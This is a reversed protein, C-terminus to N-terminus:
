AEKIKKLRCPDESVPPERGKRKRSRRTKTSVNTVARTSTIGSHISDPDKRRLNEQLTIQEQGSSLAGEVELIEDASLRCTKGKMWKLVRPLGPAYPDAGHALSLVVVRHVVQHQMRDTCEQQFGQYIAGLLWYWITISGRLVTNLDLGHELLIQFEVIRLSIITTKSNSILEQSFGNLWGAPSKDWYVQTIDAGRQLFELLIENQLKRAGSFLRSSNQTVTRLFIAFLTTGQTSLNPNVDHSFFQRLYLCTNSLGEETASEKRSLMGQWYFMESDLKIHGEHFAKLMKWHYEKHSADMHRAVDNLFATWSSVSDVLANPDAGFEISVKVMSPTLSRWPRQLISQTNDCKHAQRPGHSESMQPLCPEMSEGNVLRLEVAHKLINNLNLSAKNKLLRYRLYEAHGVSIAFRIIYCDFGCFEHLGHPRTRRNAEEALDVIKFSQLTDGTERAAHSALEIAVKVDILTPSPDVFKFTAAMARSIALLVNLESSAWSQLWQLMRKTMLFDRLTRHLFDVTTDYGISVVSTPELLGRFRGNLRRHTRLVIRHIKPGCWQECPSELGFTPDEQELFYYHIMKLPQHTRLAALFTTAMRTRYIDEVSGLIHEFFKELDTPIARLREHLISVPDDNTIGDRLSRVVLRVWLFVGQARAVIDSIMDDFLVQEFDAHATYSMLNERAFLEIDKRTWEHLRLIHPNSRGFADQFSNWPRSSLCLKVNPCTAFDQLTNIVDWSDGYYEDLGDVHFYFNAAVAPQERFTVFAKQLESLTWPTSSVLGVKENAREPCLIPVLDPCADLIRYLLTQLFGELSKQMEQGPNWFYFSARSLPVHGSWARLHKLTKSHNYIHKM